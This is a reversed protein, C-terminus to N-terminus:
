RRSRTRRPGDGSRGPGGAGYATLDAPEKSFYVEAAATVGYARHGFYAVNLYKELIQLKSLKQELAIALRIERVKRAGTQETAAQVEEPTAAADRLVNRVYQMTLTSAGQSVEGSRHNAVFARAIGKLDVGHHEYFRADEAAVIAQKMYEAVATIPTALRHEDYFQALLTTGDSAYVRTTQAPQTDPLAEAQRDLQDAGAKVGLGAVAALPYVVAAVLLGGVLGTRVLAIM